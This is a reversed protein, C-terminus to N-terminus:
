LAVQRQWAGRAVPWSWRLLLAGGGFLAVGIAWQWLDHPHAAMGLLRGAAAGNREAQLRFALEALFVVGGLSLVLGPIQGVYAPFLPGARGTRVLPTHALIIGSLGGPAWLVAAIFLLGDYLQWADTITSLAVQLFTVLIAGLVPGWFTGVGGIFTMLLVAGSAESSINASTVIEDNLAQLGGAVGAFLGSLAFVLFRIRAPDYGIFAVREANDRVSNALRGLPTATYRWMLFACVFAWGAILFYVNWQSGFDIGFLAPGDGRDGNIGEEGGFLSPFMLVAAACLEALGLTIMAFATEGRRTAVLGALLAAALGGAAGVLPLVPGPVWWGAGAARMAHMAAFGGFGLFVAHGFDLMGGQGLLMNFSLAFVIAIGMRCLLSLGFGSSLVFPAAVAALAVLVWPLAARLGWDRRAPARRITVSM